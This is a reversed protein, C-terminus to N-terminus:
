KLIQQLAKINNVPQHCVQNECVRVVAQTNESEKVTLTKQPLWVAQILDLMERGAGHKIDGELVIDKVPGFYFQLAMMMQTFASPHAMVEDHFVKFIAESNKLDNETFNFHYIRLSNLAALSNGSPVAGDYVEKPRLILQEGDKPTLFLGGHEKDWFLDVMERNLRLAEDFYNQNFSNEYLDLLGAILFVYDELGALIGAEHDRYRHLLRGQDNKLQRLIFQAAAEAAQLYREDKLICGAMALSSIMLGNWDVLIKDDLHPRPRKARHEFLKVKASAILSSVDEISKKCYAATEDLSHKMHLINKGVFEGHPDFEANGNKAIGFYVNIVVFEDATLINRLEDEGWLYFAGEKKEAEIDADPELSDADEASYFGGNSDRMDRLVYDLTERATDAYIKKGTAAYAELYIKTLLAQDYLMKEFHPVQWHADTAYRHFGGGLQDNIGGQAMAILTKEVIGLANKDDNNKWYRLLFSLTHGMPFKPSHGFGGNKVDFNQDLQGFAKTLIEKTSIQGSPSKAKVRQSLSEVMQDGSERVKDEQKLWSSHVSWLLDKFGPSGFRAEPPFYTGGYFPKTQPTLFVSLPWGGSGTTATVFSMYISDIDPREERDVKIAVFHDNLLQATEEDEFSEHEMVHCWHCTSYGISLFIPKNEKQAKAFAEPGWPYWEVPNYAHQLLYPSKELGLRNPHQSNM